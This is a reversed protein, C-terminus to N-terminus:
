AELDINQSDFWVDFGEKEEWEIIKQANITLEQEINLEGESNAAVIYETNGDKVTKTLGSNNISNKLNIGAHFIKNKGEATVYIALQVIGPGTVNQQSKNGVLGLAEFTGQYTLVNGQTEKLEPLFIIRGTRNKDLANNLLEIRSVVGSLEAMIKTVQLNGELKIKFNVTIKQTVPLMTACINAEKGTYLSVDHQQDKFIPDKYSIFPQGPNFDVWDVSELEPIDKKSVNKVTLALDRMSYNYNNIYSDLEEIEYNKNQGVFFFTYEGSKLRISETESTTESKESVAQETTPMIFTHRWTNVIRSAIVQVNDPKCADNDGFDLLVHLIASHPHEEEYCLEVQTCSTFFLCLLLSLLNKM